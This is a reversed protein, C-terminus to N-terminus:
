VLSGLVDELIVDLETLPRPEAHPINFSDLVDGFRLYGDSDALAVWQVGNKSLTTRAQNSLRDAVLLRADNPLAAKFGEPNGRGM